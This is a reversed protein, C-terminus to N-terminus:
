SEKHIDDLEFAHGATANVLAAAAAPVKTELGFATAEPRGADAGVMRALRATWPLTAGHAICGLGDLISLKLHRVVAEPLRDFTLAASFGALERTAGAALDAPASTSM